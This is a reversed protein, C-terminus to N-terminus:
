RLRQQTSSSSKTNHNQHGINNKQRETARQMKKEARKKDTDTAFEALLEKMAEETTGYSARRLVERLLTANGNKKTLADSCMIEGPVWKVVANLAKVSHAMVAIDIKTRKCDGGSASLRTLHDYLGRADTVASSPTKDPQLRVVAVSEAEGLLNASHISATRDTVETWIARTWELEALGDDLALAEAGLTAKVTRRVRRSQWRILSFPALRGQRFGSTTASILFGGQSKGGPNNAWGCDSVVVWELDGLPIPVIRILVEPTGKLEKVCREADILNQVFPGGSEWSMTMAAAAAVDPRGERTVWQLSGGVGRLQSIEAPVLPAKPDKRRQPPLRVSTLKDEVYRRMSVQIEGDPQQTLTRGLYEGGAENWKGFKLKARLMEMKKAHRQNGGQLIDDVDLLVVGAVLNKLQPDYNDDIEEVKLYYLCPDFSCEEYGLDLVIRRCTKRWIVPGDVFGYVATLLEFLDDELYGPVGGQPLSAYLPGNPRERHDSQAFATRVDAIIMRYRHSAIVQLTIMLTSTAPTPSFREVELADPDLHGLVIWRAKAKDPQGLEQVKWTLVFRSPIIRDAAERYVKAKEEESLKRIANCNVISEIEARKAELFLKRAREDLQKETLEKSNKKALWVYQVGDDDELELVVDGSSQHFWAHAKDGAGVVIPKGQKDPLEATWQAYTTRPKARLEEAAGSKDFIRKKQLRDKVRGSGAMREYIGEDLRRWKSSSAGPSGRAPHGDLRDAQRRSAEVEQEMAEPGRRGALAEGLEEEDEPPTEGSEEEGEATRGREELDEHAQERGAEPEKGHKGKSESAAGGKEEPTESHEEEEGPAREGEEEPAAGHEKEDGPAAPEEIQPAEGQQAEEEEPAGGGGGFIRGIDADLDAEEPSKKDERNVQRQEDEQLGGPEEFDERAVDSDESDPHEGEKEVDVYGLKEADYKLREKARLLINAVSEIGIRDRNAIRRVQAENCKWLESRRSVWVTQGNSQVVVCPGVYGNAKKKKVVRKRWVKVLEGPTFDKRRAQRPRARTAVQKKRQCDAKVMSSRAAERIAAARNMSEDDSRGYEYLSDSGLEWASNPTKGFVRQAPSYGSRNSMTQKAWSTEFIMIKVEEDNRPPLMERTKYYIEKLLGGHVETKGNEHPSDRDIIEVLIGVAECKELFETGVFERGQDVIMLQPPGFVRLWSLTFTMWTAAATKRNGETPYFTGYTTGWCTTNLVNVTDNETVGAVELLDLGVVVNFDFCRPTAMPLRSAPRKRELCGECQFQEAVYKLVEPRSGAAWIVRIMEKQNSHGSNIHLRMVERKETATLGGEHYDDTEGFATFSPHDHFITVVVPYSHDLQFAARGDKPHFREFHVWEGTSNQIVTTRHTAEVNAPQLAGRDAGQNVVAVAASNVMMIKEKAGAKKAHDVLENLQSDTPVQEAAKREYDYIEEVLGDVIAEVCADAYIAADQSLNGQVHAHPYRCRCWLDLKRYINHSTTAWMTAKKHRQQRQFRWTGRRPRLGFRCLHSRRVMRVRKMSMLKRASPLRWSSATAPHEHLGFRGEGRAEQKIQEEMAFDFLNVAKAYRRALEVPDMRSKNVRMWSSFQDCPPSTVLLWPDAEEVIASAQKKVEKKELDYGTLLDLSHEAILGRAAAAKAVRPPSFLEVVHHRTAQRQRALWVQDDPCLQQVSAELQKREKTTLTTTEEGLDNLMLYSVAEPEMEYAVVVDTPGALDYSDYVRRTQDLMNWGEDGLQFITRRTWWKRGSCGGRGAVKDLGRQWGILALKKDVAALKWPVQPRGAKRERVDFAAASMLGLM